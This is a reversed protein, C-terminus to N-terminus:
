KEVGPFRIVVAPLNHQVSELTMSFKKSGETGTVSHALLIGDIRRYDSVNSIVRPPPTDATDLKDGEVQKLLGTSADFRWIEREGTEATMELVNVKVSDVMADPLLRRSPYWEKYHRDLDLSHGRLLRKFEKGQVVTIKSGKRTWATKGDYGSGGGQGLITAEEEWHNPRQLRSKLRLSIWGVSIKAEMVRSQIRALNESGGIAAFHREVVQDATTPAAAGATGSLLVLAAICSRLLAKM